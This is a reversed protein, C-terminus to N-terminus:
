QLHEIMDKSLSALNYGAKWGWDQQALSDDVSESWSDAIAQRFDPQYTIKFNPFYKLLEEYIEKPTFSLGSLNYSTRISIKEVPAEMLEITARIADPMYMMPLSTNEHLFCLYNENKIAHYFIDVAYDTTGGGPLSEYSILGPYRLSRVDVGFKQHYYQCWLESAFKSIGYVTTPEFVSHQPVNKRVTTPGQIGISSPFFVKELELEKAIELVNFLGNMNIDWAKLPQQEGKASLIAALHYITGVEYKSVLELLRKHDLVDLQEFFIDAQSSPRIDTALVKDVGYRQGLAKVLASGIQGNAGTVLITKQM